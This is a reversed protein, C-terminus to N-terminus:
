SDYTRSPGAAEPVRQRASPLLDTIRFNAINANNAIASAMPAAPSTGPKAGVACAYGVPGMSGWYPEGIRPASSSLIRFNAINANNAIASAMPEAPSTGPKAGMACAYGEPGTSGQYPEGFRPASSSLILFNAVNANNATASAM